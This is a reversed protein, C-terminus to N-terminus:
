GREPKGDHSKRSFHDMLSKNDSTAAIVGLTISAATAFALLTDWRQLSGLGEVLHWPKEYGNAELRKTVLKRFEKDEGFVKTRFSSKGAEATLNNNHDLRHQKLVADTDKLEDYVANRAHRHAWVLGAGLSVPYKAADITKQVAGPEDTNARTDPTAKDSAM